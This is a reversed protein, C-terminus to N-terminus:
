QTTRCRNQLIWVRGCLVIRVASGIFDFGAKQIGRISPVNWSKCDIYVNSVQDNGKLTRVITELMTPYIGRGRYQPFVFCSLIMADDEDLAVFYDTRKKHSHSWCIAVIEGEIVGLWLECGRAFLKDLERILEPRRTMQLKSIINPDVASRAEYRETLLGPVACVSSRETKRYVLSVHVPIVRRVVHRMLGIPGHEKWARCVRRVIM